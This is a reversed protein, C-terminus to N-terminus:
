SARGAGWSRTLRAAATRADGSPVASRSELGDACARITLGPTTAIHAAATRIALPSNGCLAVLRVAAEHESRVREEGAVASLVALAERTGPLRLTLHHGGPAVLLGALGDRGTVLVGCSTGGPLLSRIAAGNTAGDLVVLLRRGATSSRFEAVVDDLRRPLSTAGLARLFSCLVERLCATTVPHDCLRAFLQGDSYRRALRHAAAVAVTTKGVGEPGTVLVLPHRPRGPAPDLIQVIEDIEGDRGVIGDTPMPLQRPCPGATTTASITEPRAGSLIQEHVACLDPGPGIGLEDALLRSVARYAELADARRNAGHLARMRQAWFRERLPYRNVLELLEDCSEAHRGLRLRLDVRLELANLYREVLRQADDRRVAESAVDVLPPVAKWLRLAHELDALADHLQLALAADNAREVLRDFVHLDLQGPMVDIRYGDPETSVTASTGSLARRLRMVYKQITGRPDVPVVDGWLKHTLDGIHVTQGHNLLLVALLARQKGGHLPVPRGHSVVTLPGLLQFEIGAAASVAGPDGLEDPGPRGHSPSLSQM